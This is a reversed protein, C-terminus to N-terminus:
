SNLKQLLVITEVHSTQCFQDVACSRLIHYGAEMFFPLDRALSTAKCSIYVVSPVQLALIKALAKPHLGDRPPDLIILDPKETLDDLVKLVDGQLFICNELRNLRANERASAVAEEVLEVGTVSEAVPALLQAITGTGSYLDYICGAAPRSEPGETRYFATSDGDMNERSSGAINLAFLAYERVKGYLREAALSNPQFFSFSTVKFTLNLIEEFFYDKGYLIRTEDSRVVDSVADNILHLIGSISGELKLALLKEALPGLDHEEQGTTVLHVLIEGTASSRRLLLHRLYGKHTVRHYHTLQNERCWELVCALIMGMDRHVLVCDETTLIDYASNRKHLGLSLPGDKYADGFSFEMKNRYRFEDPAPIIGEWCSDEELFPELLRRIQGEKMELQDKYEMTQYLCGGCEPFSRCAKERKELVSPEVVELLRCQIGSSRKKLIRLRVHQGPIVNKVLVRCSDVTSIGTGPYEVAEIVAEVIDGKKM